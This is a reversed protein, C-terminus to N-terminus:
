GTAGLDVHRARDLLEDSRGRRLGHLADAVRAPLHLAETRPAEPDLNYLEAGLHAAIRRAAHETAGTRSFYLVLSAAANGKAPSPPAAAVAGQLFRVPPRQIMFAGRDM